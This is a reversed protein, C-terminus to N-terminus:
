FFHFRVTHPRRSRAKGRIKYDKKSPHLSVTGWVTGGHGHWGVKDEPVREQARVRHPEPRTTCAQAVSWEESEQCPGRAPRRAEEESKDIVM